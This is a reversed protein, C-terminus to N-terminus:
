EMLARDDQVFLAQDWLADLHKAAHHGCFYLESSTMVARVWARAGCADCRDMATLDRRQLAGAATQQSVSTDLTTANM